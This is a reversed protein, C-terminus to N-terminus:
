TSLMRLFALALRDQRVATAADDLTMRQSSLEYGETDTWEVDAGGDRDSARGAYVVQLFDPHPWPHDVSQERLHEFHLWGLPRLSEPDVLWGTEEHAERCATEVVTEDGERRGGAWPHLIGDRNSCVVIDDEVLVICRVSLVLEDPLEAARTHAAIRLPVAGNAWATEEVAAPSVESALLKTLAPHRLGWGPRM